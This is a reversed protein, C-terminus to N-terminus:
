KMEAMLNTLDKKMKERLQPDAEDWMEKLTMVTDAMHEKAHESMEHKDGESRTETYHRRALKWDKYPRGHREDSMIREMDPDSYGMRGGSMNGSNAAGSSQNSSGSNYNSGGRSQNSSGDNPYGMMDPYQNMMYGKDFEPRWDGEAPWPYGSRGGHIPTWHGTGKRAYRGSANRWHDYGMRGEDDMSPMDEGEYEEMAKTVAKYYAAKWLNKEADCLDKVMDVTKGAQDIDLKDCEVGSTTYSLVKDKLDCIEKVKMEIEHM